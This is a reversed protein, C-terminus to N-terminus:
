GKLGRPTPAAEPASPATPAAAKAPTGIRHPLAPKGPRRDVPAWHFGAGGDGALLMPDLRVGAANAAGDTDLLQRLRRTEVTDALSLEHLAGGGESLYIRGAESRILVEGPAPQADQSTAGVLAGPRHDGTDARAAAASLAGLGFLLAVRSPLRLWRCVSGSVPM